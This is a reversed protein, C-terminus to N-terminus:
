FNIGGAEVGFIHCAFTDVTSCIGEFILTRGFLFPLNIQFRPEICNRLIMAYRVNLDSLISLNDSNFNDNPFCFAKSIELDYTKFNNFSEAFDDAFDQMSRNNSSINLHGMSGFSFGADAAERIQAWDMFDCYAPVPLDQLFQTLANEIDDQQEQSCHRLGKLFLAITTPTITLDPSAELIDPNTLEDLASFHPMKLDLKMLAMLFLTIRDELYLKDTGIYATSIFVTAPIQYKLLLPIATTYTDIHGGDFTLVVAKPPIDDYQEIKIILEKLSLPTCNKIIYHLHKEFTKPRTYSTKSIMFPVEEPNIIRQYRLISWRPLGYKELEKFHEDFVAQRNAYLATARYRIQQLLQWTDVKKNEPNNNEPTKKNDAM